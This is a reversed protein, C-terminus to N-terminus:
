AARRVRVHSAMQEISSRDLRDFRTIRHGSKKDVGQAHEVLVLSTEHLMRPAYFWAQALSDADQDADILMLDINPLSNATRALASYPDGPVLKVQVGTERLMRHAEKLSLQSTADQPRGEFLDVGTIEIDRTAACRQATEVIRVARRADGLGLLLLREPCVKKVIRYVARDSVPKSFRTLYLTKFFGTAAV